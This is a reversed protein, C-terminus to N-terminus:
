SISVVSCMRFNSSSKPAGTTRADIKPTIAELEIINITFKIKGHAIERRDILRAKFGVMILHLRAYYVADPIVTPIAILQGTQLPIRAETMPERINPFNFNLISYGWCRTCALNDYLIAHPDLMDFWYQVENKRDHSRVYRVADVIALYAEARYQDYQHMRQVYPLLKRPREKGKFKHDTHPQAFIPTSNGESFGVRTAFMASALLALSVLIWQFRSAVSLIALAALAPLLALMGTPITNRLPYEFTWPIAAQTVFLICAMAATVTYSRQDLSEVTRGLITGLALMTAPILVSEYYWVQLMSTTSTLWDIAGFIVFLLLIQASWVHTPQVRGRSSGKVVQYATPLSVLAVAAPLALWVASWMWENDPFRFFYTGKRLVEQGPNLYLYRGISISARLFWFDNVIAKSFLSLPICLGLAGLVYPLLVKLISSPSPSRKVGQFIVLNAAPFPALTLYFLNTIVMAAACAGGAAMALLGRRSGDARSVFWSAMLFYTIGFADCYDRGIADLFFFYTGMALATIFATKRGIGKAILSFLTFVSTYYLALHVVCHASLPPLLGHALALPLVITLRGGYYTNDYKTLMRWPDIGYGLYIWPDHILTPFIWNRDIAFLLLPLILLVAVDWRVCSWGRRWISESGSAGEGLAVPHVQQCSHTRQNM